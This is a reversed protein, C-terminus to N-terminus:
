RLSPGWVLAPHIFVDKVCYVAGSSDMRCSGFESFFTLFSLTAQVDLFRTSPHSMLMILSAMERGVGM